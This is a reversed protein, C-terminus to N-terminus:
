RPSHFTLPIQLSSCMTSSSVFTCRFLLMLCCCSIIDYLLTLQWDNSRKFHKTITHNMFNVLFRNEFANVSGSILQYYFYFMFLIFELGCKTVPFCIGTRRQITIFINVVNNRSFYNRSWVRDNERNQM